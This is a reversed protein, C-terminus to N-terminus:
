MKLKTEFNIDPCDDADGEFKIILDEGKVDGLKLNKSKDHLPIKIYRETLNSYVAFNAVRGIETDSYFFGEDKYVVINGRLSQDGKRELTLSLQAGSNSNSVNINKFRGEVSTKGFRAVVPITVGPLGQINFSMKKSRSKPQAKQIVNKEQIYFHSRAEIDKNKRAKKNLMLRIIQTENPNLTIRRPSYDIFPSAFKVKSAQTTTLPSIKEIPKKKKNLGKDVFVLNGNRKEINRYAGSKMPYLEVFKMKYSKAESGMNTIQISKTKDKGSFVIKQPHVLFDASVSSTALISALILCIKKM